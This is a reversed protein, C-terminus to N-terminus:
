KKLWKIIEEAADEPTLDSTDVRFGAAQEYVPKRKGLIEKIKELKDGEALLPRDDSDQLRQCIAEPSATLLVMKGVKKLLATNDERLVVGGGTSIVFNDYDELTEVVEKEIERFGAEGETKFIDSISKGKATEILGDTDIFSMGLRSALERGVESKGVGMFGILIINM